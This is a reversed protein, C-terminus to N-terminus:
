VELAHTLKAVTSIMCDFLRRRVSALVSIGTDELEAMSATASHTDSPSPDAQSNQLTAFSVTRALHNIRYMDNPILPRQHDALVRGDLRYSQWLCALPSRGQDPNRSAASKKAAAAKHARRQVAAQVKSQDEKRKSPDTNRSRPRGVTKPPTALSRADSSTDM